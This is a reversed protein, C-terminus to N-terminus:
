RPAEGGARALVSVMRESVAGSALLALHGTSAAIWRHAPPLGLDLRPDRHRGLASAITVIGDGRMGRGDASVAAALSGAIAHCAVGAPLSVPHRRSRGPAFRDRGQWDEDVVSGHRMDTIGASRVRGLRAFPAAYPVAELLVDVGHGVRELPSGHHPTGLFVLSELIGRWRHKARAGYEAASRAVLGGMSHGVVVLRAVRGPWADVLRELLAALERGNTSVHLGTNYHLSLVDADLACALTVRHDNGDRAWHRDSMCLGHVAVVLTTSPRAVRAALTDPAVDVAEGDRRLRMPIALPNGTAALHDGLVGNLAAVLADRRPTDPIERVLPALQELIADMSAGVARTVGRIARYVQGTVRDVADGTAGTLRVPARAIRGHLAEVLDTLGLTADVALRGVGRLDRVPHRSRRTGTLAAARVAGADRGATRGLRPPL